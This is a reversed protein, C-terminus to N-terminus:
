CLVGIVEKADDKGLNRAKSSANYYHVVFTTKGLREVNLSVLKTVVLILDRTNLNTIYASNQTSTFELIM